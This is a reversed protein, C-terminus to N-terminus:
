TGLEVRRNPGFDMYDKKQVKISQELFFDQFYHKYFIIKRHKQAM